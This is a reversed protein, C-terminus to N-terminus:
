NPESGEVIKLRIRPEPEPEPEPPAAFRLLLETALSVIREPDSEDRSVTAMLLNNPRLEVRLLAGGAGRLADALIRQLSEPVAGFSELKYGRPLLESPQLAFGLNKPAAVDDDPLVRLQPLEPPAPFIGLLMRQPKHQTGALCSAISVDLYRNLPAIAVRGHWLRDISVVPPLLTLPDLPSLAAISVERELSLGNKRAWDDLLDLRSRRRRELLLFFTLVACGLLLWPLIERM